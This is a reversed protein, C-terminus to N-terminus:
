LAGRPGAAVEGGAPLLPGLVDRREERLLARRDGPGAAPGRRHRGHARRHAAHLLQRRLRHPRQPGAPPCGDLPSQSAHKELSHVMEPIQHGALPHIQDLDHFRKNLDATHTQDFFAM